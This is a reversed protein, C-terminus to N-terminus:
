LRIRNLSGSLLSPSESTMAFLYGASRGKRNNPVLLGRALLNAIDRQASDASCGCIGV